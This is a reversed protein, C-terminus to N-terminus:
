RLSMDPVWARDGYPARSTGRAAERLQVCAAQVLTENEVTPNRSYKRVARKTAAWAEGRIHQTQVTRM